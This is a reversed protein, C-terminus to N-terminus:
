RYVMSPTEYTLTLTEVLEDQLGLNTYGKVKFDSKVNM